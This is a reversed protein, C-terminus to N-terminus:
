RGTAYRPKSTNPSCPTTCRRSTWPTEHPPATIRHTIACHAPRACARGEAAPPHGGCRPPSHLVQWNRFCKKAEAWAPVCLGIGVWGKPVEYDCGISWGVDPDSAGWSKDISPDLAGEPLDLRRVWDEAVVRAPDPGCDAPHRGEPSGPRDPSVCRLQDRATREPSKIWTAEAEQFSLTKVGRPTAILGAKQLTKRGADYPRRDKFKAKLIEQEARTFSGGRATSSGSAAGAFQEFFSTGVPDARFSKLANDQMEMYGFSRGFGLDNFSPIHGTYGPIRLQSKTVTTRYPERASGLAYGRKTPAASGSMDLKSLDLKPTPKPKRLLGPHGM